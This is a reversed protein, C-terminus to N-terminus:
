LYNLRSRQGKDQSCPQDSWRASINGAAPGSQPLVVSLRVSPGSVLVSVARQGGVAAPRVCRLHSVHCSSKCWRLSDLVDVKTQAANLTHVSSARLCAALDSTM